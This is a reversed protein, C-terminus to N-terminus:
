EGEGSTTEVVEDEEDPVIEAFANAPVSDGDGELMVHPRMDLTLYRDIESELVVTFGRECLGEDPCDLPGPFSLAAIFGGTGTVSALHEVAPGAAPDDPIVAVRLVTEDDASSPSYSAEFPVILASSTYPGAGRVLFRRSARGEGHAAYYHTGAALLRWRGQGAEGSPYVVDFTFPFSEVVQGGILSADFILDEPQESGPGHTQLTVGWRISYAGTRDGDGQFQVALEQVCSGDEAPACSLAADWVQLQFALRGNGELLHQQSALARKGPEVLAIRLEEAANTYVIEGGIVINAQDNAPSFRITLPISPAPQQASLELDPGELWIERSWRPPPSTAISAAAAVGIALYLPWTTRIRRTPTSMRRELLLRQAM